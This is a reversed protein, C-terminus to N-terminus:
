KNMLNNIKEAIIKIDGHPKGTTGKLRLDIIHNWEDTTATYIAKTHTDLPLIGRVEDTSLGMGFENDSCNKLDNPMDRLSTMYFREVIEMIGEWWKKYAYSKTDYWYPKNFAVANGFKDKSFNCYRTSQECIYFNDHHRNMERTCGISTDVIFSKFISNTSSIERLYDLMLDILETISNIIKQEEKIQIISEVLVRGNIYVSSETEVRYKSNGCRAIVIEQIRNSDGKGTYIKYLKEFDFSIIAHEFPSFHKSKILSEVLKKDDTTKDSAYCIRAARAVAKYFNDVGEFDTIEQVNPEIIKM